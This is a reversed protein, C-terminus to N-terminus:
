KANEPQNELEEPERGPRLEKEYYVYESAVQMGVKHYLRTAGNPNEADVGLMVLTAGRKYFEGFAHYLLALGLGRKRWPRRVGLTGVWCNELHYYCLAYGAVEDGDWAIFWLAPDFTESGTKHHQWFEYPRPVFGWHDHFAEQHAQYVLYDHEQVDFPRLEIGQPWAPPPPAAALHIEMRWMFRVAQYGEAEHMERATRDGIAMANQISVRYGPGALEVQERARTELARLLATGIGQGMFDPHVYGDGELAAHAYRNTLEEYGIVRGGPTAAVWADTELTFGPTEWQERLGEPSVAVTPDGDNTCVDLILQAVAELDPWAAPRIEFPPLRRRPNPPLGPDPRVPAIGIPSLADIHEDILDLRIAM